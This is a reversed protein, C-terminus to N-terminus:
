FRLVIWMSSLIWLVNFEGSSTVTTEMKEVKCEKLLVNKMNKNDAVILGNLNCDSTDTDIELQKIMLVITSGPEIELFWECDVYDSYPSNPTVLSGSVARIHGGCGERTFELRFGSSTLAFDSVFRILANNGSTTIDTSPKRDYKTRKIEEEGKMDVIELFDPMWSGDLEFSMHSFSIKLTHSRPSIVKWECNLNSPYDGPFNPSEIIGFPKDITVKCNIKYELLFSSTKSGETSTYKVHVMNTESKLTIMGNSCDFKLPRDFDQNDFLILIGPGCLDSHGTVTFDITSGHNVTIYWDCQMSDSIVAPYHPSHISGELSDLKGGCGTSTQEYQIHFGAAGVANDSHFRLFLHNTFSPILPPIEEGCFRGILPSKETM